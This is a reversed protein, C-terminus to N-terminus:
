HRRHVGTRATADLGLHMPHTKIDTGAPTIKQM